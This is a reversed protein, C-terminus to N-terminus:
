LFVVDVLRAVSIDQDAGRTGSSCPTPTVLSRGAGHLLRAPTHGHARYVQSVSLPEADSLFAATVRWCM